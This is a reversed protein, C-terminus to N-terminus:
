FIDKGRVEKYAVVSSISIIFLVIQARVIMRNNAASVAVAWFLHVNPAM